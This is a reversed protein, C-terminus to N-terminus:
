LAERDYYRTQDEVGTLSRILAVEEKNYSSGDRKLIDHFWVPPEANYSKTWSDWPYKTQSKGDVFGWNVMGVNYKKAIPLFGAFTSGNPRAMYETCIMPRKYRELWNIRKEFEEPSDYNHFTIIDSQEVQLQEIPKMKNHASWDGSWIGSTLPQSPDIARAWLFTKKLLPLIYEVKNPLEVKEYSPGTMNDPENWLDWALIREDDKFRTLVGKIYRELRPHQTTDKLATQGPSQIWGSNHVFPKPARQKGARPFPDWCSDFFVFLPKIQNREAIVLFTNIRKFFGISDQEYLLDHLYVRATNMGIGKAWALERGITLTDFSDEQWMELQNIATSPIFNAGILWGQKVSWEKAKTQSWVTVPSKEAPKENFCGQFLVISSFLALSTKLLHHM